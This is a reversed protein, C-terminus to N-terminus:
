LGAAQLRSALSRADSAKSWYLSAAIRHESAARKHFESDRLMEDAWRNLRWVRFRMWLAKINRMM